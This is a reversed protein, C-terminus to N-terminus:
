PCRGSADVRPTGPPLTGLHWVRLRSSACSGRLQKVCLRRSRRPRGPASCRCVIAWPTLRPVRAGSPDGAGAPRCIRSAEVGQSRVRLRSPAFSVLRQKVCLRRSRRPLLCVKWAAPKVGQWRWRRQSGRAWPQGLFSSLGPNAGWVRVLRMATTAVVSGLDSPRHEALADSGFGHLLCRACFRLPASSSLSHSTQADSHSEM